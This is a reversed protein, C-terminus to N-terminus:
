AFVTQMLTTMDKRGWTACYDVIKLRLDKPIPLEDKLEKIRMVDGDCFSSLVAQQITDEVLEEPLDFGRKIENAIDVNGRKLQNLMAQKAIEMLEM